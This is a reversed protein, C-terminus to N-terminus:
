SSGEQKGNYIDNLLPDTHWRNRTQSCRGLHPRLQSSLIAELLNLVQNSTKLDLKRNASDAVVLEKQNASISLEQIHLKAPHNKEPVYSHVLHSAERITLLV